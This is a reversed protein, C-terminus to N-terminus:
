FDHITSKEKLKWWIEKNKFKIQGQEIFIWANGVCKWALKKLYDQFCPFSVSKWPIHFIGHEIWYFDVALIKGRM